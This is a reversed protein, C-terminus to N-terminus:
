LAAPETGVNESLSYCLSNLRTAETWAALTAAQCEVLRDAYEVALEGTRPNVYVPWGDQTHDTRVWNM